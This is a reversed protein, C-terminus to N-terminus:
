KVKLADLQRNLEDFQQQRLLKKQIDLQEQLLRNQERQEFLQMEQQHTRQNQLQAQNPYRNGFTNSLMNLAPTFDPVLSRGQVNSLTDARVDFALALICFAAVAYIIKLM